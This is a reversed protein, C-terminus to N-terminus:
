VHNKPREWPVNRDICHEQSHENPQVGLIELKEIKPQGLRLGTGQGRRRLIEIEEAKMKGFQEFVEIACKGSECGRHTGPRMM